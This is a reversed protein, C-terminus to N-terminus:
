KRNAYLENSNEKTWAATPSGIPKPEICLEWILGFEAQKARQQTTNAQIMGNEKETTDSQENRASRLNQYNVTM